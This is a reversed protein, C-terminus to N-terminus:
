RLLSLEQSVARGRNEAGGADFCTVGRFRMELRCTVSATTLRPRPRADPNPLPRGLRADRPGPVAVERGRGAIVLPSGGARRVWRETAPQPEPISITKV